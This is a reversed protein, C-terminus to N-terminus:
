RTRGKPQKSRINVKSVISKLDVALARTGLDSLLGKSTTSTRAGVVLSSGHGDKVAKDAGPADLLSEYGSGGEM